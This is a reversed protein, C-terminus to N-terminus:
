NFQFQISGTTKIPYKFYKLICNTPKCDHCFVVSCVLRNRIVWPNLFSMQKQDLGCSIIDRWYKYENALWITLVMSTFCHEQAQVFVLPWKQIGPDYPAYQHLGNNRTRANVNSETLDVTCLLRHTQKPLVRPWEQKICKKWCSNLRGKGVTSM